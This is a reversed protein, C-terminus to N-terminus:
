DYFFKLCNILILVLMLLKIDRLIMRESYLFNIGTITRYSIKKFSKENMIKPNEKNLLFFKMLDTPINEMPIRTETEKLKFDIMNVINLPCLHSLRKLTSLERIEVFNIEKSIEDTKLDDKSSKKGKKNKPINKKDKVCFLQLRKNSKKNLLLYSKFSYLKVFHEKM